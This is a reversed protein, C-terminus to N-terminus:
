PLRDGGLEATFVLHGGARLLHQHGIAAFLREVVEELHQEARAIFQQQGRGVPQAVRFDSPQGASGHPDQRAGSGIAEAEVRGLELRGDARGALQEHEIAGAIGRAHHQAARLEFGDSRNQAAMGMHRHDAILDVLKQQGWAVLVM